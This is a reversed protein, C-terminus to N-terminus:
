AVALVPCSTDNVVGRVTGPFEIGSLHAQRGIVLLDPAATRIAHLLGSVESSELIMTAMNLGHAKAKECARIQLDTLQAHKAKRLTEPMAPDVVAALQVYGPLPELVTVLTVRAKLQQALDLGMVLAREAPQSNDYAILIHELTNM